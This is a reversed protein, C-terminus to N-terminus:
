TTKYAPVVYVNIGELLQFVDHDNITDISRCTIPNLDYEYLWELDQESKERENLTHITGDETFTMGKLSDAMFELDIDKTDILHQLEMKRAQKIDEAEIYREVLNAPLASLCIVAFKM